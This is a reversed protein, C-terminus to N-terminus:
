IRTNKLVEFSKPKSEMSLKIFEKFDSYKRDFELIIITVKLGTILSGNDDSPKNLQQTCSRSANKIHFSKDQIHFSHPILKLYKYLLLM